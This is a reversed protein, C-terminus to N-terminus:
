TRNIKVEKCNTTTILIYFFKYFTCNTIDNSIESITAYPKHFKNQKIKFFVTCFLITM